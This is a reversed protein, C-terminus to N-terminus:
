KKRAQIAREQRKAGEKTNHRGLVKSGDRSRLTYKGGEKRIM